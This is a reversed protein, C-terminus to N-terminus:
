MKNALCEMFTRFMRKSKVQFSENTCVLVCDCVLETNLAIIISVYIKKPAAKVMSQELVVIAM